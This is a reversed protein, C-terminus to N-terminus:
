EEAYKWIYGGASKRNGLACQIISSQNIYLERQIEKSSKWTKIFDNSKSFQNIRKSHVLRAANSSSQQQALKRLKYTEIKEQLLEKSFNDKYIWLYKNASLVTGTAANSITAGSYNLIRGAESISTFQNIFNGELSFQLVPKSVIELNWVKDTKSKKNLLNYGEKLFNQIYRSEVLRREKFSCNDTFELIKFELDNNDKAYNSLIKNGNYTLHEKLRKRLNNTEGIYYIDKKPLYFLYIGQVEPIINEDLM